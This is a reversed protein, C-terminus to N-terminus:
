SKLVGLSVSAETPAEAMNKLAHFCLLYRVRNKISNLRKHVIDMAKHSPERGCHHGVFVNQPEQARVYAHLHPVCRFRAKCRSVLPAIKNM